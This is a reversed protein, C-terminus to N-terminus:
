LLINLINLIIHVSLNLFLDRKLSSFRAKKTTYVYCEIGARLPLCTIWVIRLNSAKPEFVYPGPSVTFPGPLKWMGLATGFTMLFLSLFSVYLSFSHTLYSSHRRPCVRSTGRGMRSEVLSCRREQRPYHVARYEEKETGKEEEEEAMAMARVSIFALPNELSLSLFGINQVSASAATAATAIREKEEEEERVRWERSFLFSFGSNWWSEKERKRAEHACVL